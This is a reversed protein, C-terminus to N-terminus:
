EEVPTGDALLEVITVEWNTEAGDNPCEWAGGVHVGGDEAASLLATLTERFQDESEITM